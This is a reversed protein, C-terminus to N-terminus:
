DAVEIEVKEVAGINEMVYARCNACTQSYLNGDAVRQRWLQKMEEASHVPFAAERAVLQVAENFRSYHPGFFVPIGFVAAELTNHLGTEFGGGIHAVDAYKYMKNLLGITDIIFVEYESLNKGEKETFLVTKKDAFLKQISKIHEKDILHPAIVLKYENSIEPFLEALIHEDPQWTSGAILLKSNEKFGEIEPVAVNEKAIRNVRDFRTDGSITVQKIDISQLLKESNKDQVYFHTAATLQKRFWGGYWKFFHQNPFFIASVYYFPINRIKLQKMYNYWYEYKVFIAAKPKVADLFRKANRPTDIPLYFVFDATKDNKRVEYGSPSFFTVLIQYDPKEARWKEILPKGQEYEGLSACHLWIIKKGSCAAELQPFINKRGNRWLKAKEYFPSALLIAFNYLLIFLNYFFRM